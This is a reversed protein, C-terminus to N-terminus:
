GRVLSSREHLNALAGTLARSRREFIPALVHSFISGRFEGFSVFHIM